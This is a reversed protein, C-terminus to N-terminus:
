WGPIFNLGFSPTGGKQLPWAYYPELILAGYLNIRLSVGASMVFPPKRFEINQVPEGNVFSTVVIEEGQSGFIHDFEDFAVGGDVFFALDTFLANTPILSLGKPGTFPLRVEFSLLALKSGILQDLEYGFREDFGGSFIFDYGRVLGMQGIYVPYTTNIDGTEFRSYSMARFAFSFPKVWKYQRYDATISHYDNTGFYKDFSLRYRYGNLPATVGFFSNDGVLGINFGANFGKVLTIYQNFQLTDAVEIKNREEGIFQNSGAFFYQEILDYRFGQHGGNVGAEFRFNPSLPYHAFLSLNQNFIRLLNLSRRDALVTGLDSLEVTTRDWSQFGTLSPIHSLGIGYAIKNKRNIWSVQGGLDFIEGNLALSAFLQNNGLMDSFLLDVAGQAGVNNGFTSNGVAVGAGGGIYDLAFKSKYKKNKFSNTYNTNAEAVTEGEALKIEDMEWINANVINTKNMGIVPLIAPGFATLSKDVPENKFNEGKAQFVSYTNKSFHTYLIRDRKTSVAIAPSFHTIGSVGSLLDTMKLVEGTETMYKYMNRFGDRDSIFLINGEHDFSPNLNNAGPFVDLIKFDNTELDLIALDFAYRGNVRGSIVSNADTSFALKTGDESFNAHIESYKNDTIKRVKKRKLDYAFIDSQGEQLGTFFIEKGDKSWAPNSMAPVGKVTINELTKGSEVDKIIIINKGKNFAVFAFKKSNASWTGTSELFNFADIHGDKIQSSLKKIIKGTRADALFLDTSFLDKESMFVVFRGNPSLSPSVNMKGSNEDTLLAKGVTREKKDGLFQSYYTKMSEQWMDSLNEQNVGLINTFAIDLGYKAVNSFLPEIYEDGFYGSIFAWFAQGYRYPFYKHGKNLDKISPVDDNLVADRMWMATHPDFRGISLYEALGEIMWLPYNSLSQISTSDGGIIMHYQFAHVLEHGLVHHTQQNTMTLPLIVRNKFGETVGGTGVGISGSIANTQQFEAHNNYFIIPNTYYFTDKLVSQHMHYWQEAALGLDELLDKNKLYYHIDFHPTELVKFDFTQYRPKNRGFYQASLSQFSFIFGLILIINVKKM